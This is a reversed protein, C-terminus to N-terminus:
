TRGVTEFAHQAAGRLAVNEAVIVQVPIRELLGSMRGKRTFALLFDDTQLAPLIRPPIGGGLYVGGTAMVTLALDGAKVGLIRVFLSLTERCLPCPMERDLAADIIVPTADDAGAIQKGIHESGRIGSSEKLFQYLDPIGHGSCVREFSIHQRTRRMFTLLAVQQDDAPAFSAHGGESAHPLFRHGDWVLFAEGLGTGPAVVAITGEREARGEKIQVVDSTEFSPIAAAMAQLDNLLTVSEIGLTKRLRSAEVTWPLNTIEARGALVPGAVGITAHTIRGPHRDLFATVLEELSGFQGSPLRDVATPTRPTADLGYLALATKTGGVDGALLYQPADNSVVTM